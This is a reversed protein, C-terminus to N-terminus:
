DTISEWLCVKGGELLGDYGNAAAEGIEHKQPLHEAALEGGARDRRQGVLVLHTIKGAPGSAGRM